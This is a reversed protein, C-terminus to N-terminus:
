KTASFCYYYYHERPLQGCKGQSRKNWNWSKELNVPSHDGQAKQKNATLFCHM